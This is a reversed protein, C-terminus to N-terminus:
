NRCEWLARRRGNESRGDGSAGYRAERTQAFGPRDVGHGEGARSRRIRSRGSLNRLQRRGGDGKESGTVKLQMLKLKQKQVDFNRYTVSYGEAGSGARRRINRRGAGCFRADRKREHQRLRGNGTFLEDCKQLWPFVSSINSNLFGAVRDSRGPQQGGLNGDPSIQAARIEPNGFSVERDILPAFGIAKGTRAAGTARRL